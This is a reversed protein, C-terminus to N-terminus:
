PRVELTQQGDTPEVARPPTARGSVVDGLIAGFRDADLELWETDVGKASQGRSDAGQDFVTEPDFVIANGLTPEEGVFEVLLYGEGMARKAVKRMFSALNAHLSRKVVCLYTQGDKTALFAYAGHADTLTRSVRWGTWRAVTARTNALLTDPRDTNM